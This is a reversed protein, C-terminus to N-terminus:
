RYSTFYGVTTWYVMSICQNIQASEKMGVQASAESCRCLVMYLVAKCVSLLM